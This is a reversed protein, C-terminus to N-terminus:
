HCGNVMKWYFYFVKILIFIPMELDISKNEKSHEIQFQYFYCIINLRKRKWLIKSHPYWQQRQSQFVVIKLLRSCLISEIRINMHLFLRVEYSANVAPQPPPPPASQPQVNVPGSIRRDIMILAETLKEKIITHNIIAQPLLSRWGSYWRQIEQLNANTNLWANM